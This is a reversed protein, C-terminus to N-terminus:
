NFSSEPFIGANTVLMDLGGFHTITKEISTKLQETNTVDCTLGLVEDCAFSSTIAPNIDIAVVAAGEDVLKEVCAKGIGSAAGTVLAIKGQMPKSTSDKKLKQQELVWYEMEFLDKKSLANWGGLQEAQYIAKMTHRTIDRTIFNNKVSTGFSLAGNNPWVAWRPALDLSILEGTNFEDFYLSYAKAYQEIDNLYNDSLVVPTRKTRIIHDPTLPGKDM